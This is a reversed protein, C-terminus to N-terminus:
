FELGFGVHIWRFFLVRCPHMTDAELLKRWVVPMLGYSIAEIVTIGFHEFVEPTKEVSRFITDPFSM